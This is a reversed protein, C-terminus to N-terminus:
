GERLIIDLGLEEAWACFSSLQPMQKGCEWVSVQSHGVGIRRALDDQSIELARRRARLRAILEAPLM